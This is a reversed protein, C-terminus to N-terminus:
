EIGGSVTGPSTTAGTQAVATGTTSVPIGNQTLGNKIAANAQIEDIIGQCIDELVSFDGDQLFIGTRTHHASKVKAVMGAKTMAV